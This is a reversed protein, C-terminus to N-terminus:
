NACRGSSGSHNTQIVRIMMPIGHLCETGTRFSIACVNWSKKKAKEQRYNLLAVSIQLNDRVGKKGVICFDAQKKVWNNMMHNIKQDPTKVSLSSIKEYNYAEAEAFERETSEANAYRKVASCAEECSSSIGFVM